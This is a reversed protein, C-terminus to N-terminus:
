IKFNDKRELTDILILNEYGNANLFRILNSGIFGAVGAVIIYKQM